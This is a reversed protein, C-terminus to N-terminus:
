LGYGVTDKSALYASLQWRWIEQMEIRGALFNIHGQENYSTAITLCNNLSDLVVENADYLDKCMEMANQGVEADQIDSARAFEVLRYPAPSGLVRIREATPDIASYVDEYIEQFFDHFQAFDNGVVNWHHGQAKFYMVVENGLLVSFAKVLEQSPTNM